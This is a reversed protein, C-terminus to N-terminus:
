GATLLEAILHLPLGIVNSVSGRVRPIFAGAAGQLGYAGAKDLPEGTAVYADIQDASLRAFTVLTTCTEVRSEGAHRVAVGTHVHHSRGSLETLMRRADAADAPKGLVTGGLEVCTDAALVTAGPPASVTTAKALSVRRVYALAGEGPLLTEDVDPVVVEFTWGITRLLEARRPSGSALILV